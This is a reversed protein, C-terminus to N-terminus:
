GTDYSANGNQTAFGAAQLRSNVTGSQKLTTKEVWNAGVGAGIYFGTVPQANWSQQAQAAVPLTLMTAALLARQLNMETRWERAACRAPAYSGLSDASETAAPYFLDRRALCEKAIWFHYRIPTPTHQTLIRPLTHALPGGRM